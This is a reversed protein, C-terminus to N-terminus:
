RKRLPKHPSKRAPVTGAYPDDFGLTSLVKRELREMKHADREKDHDYGLLHLVGHVVLHATHARFAKNEAKAERRTTQLALVIDGLLRAAGAPLVEEDGAPFSLVNTPTDKGRYDRNLRRVAADTSFVLSIEAPRRSTFRAGALAAGVWRTALAKLRPEQARWGSGITTDINVNM